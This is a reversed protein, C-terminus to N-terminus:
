GVHAVVDSQVILHVQVPQGSVHLQGVIPLFDTDRLVGHVVSAHPPSHWGHRLRSQTRLATHSATESLTDGDRDDGAPLYWLALRTRGDSVQLIM